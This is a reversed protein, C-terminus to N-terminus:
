PLLQMPLPRLPHRAPQRGTATASSSATTSAISPTSSAAAPTAAAPTSSAAPPTTPTSSGAAAAPSSLGSFATAVDSSSLYFLKTSMPDSVIQWAMERIDSLFGKWTDCDPQTPATVRVTNRSVDQVTFQSYNLRGLRTALDGLASAHPINLEVSFPQAPTPIIGLSSATRGALEVITDQFSGLIKREEAASPQRTSYIVYLIPDRPALIFPTPNGLLTVITPADLPKSQAGTPLPLVSCTMAASSSDSSVQLILDVPAAAAYVSTAQSTARIIIPGPSNARYRVTRSGGVPTANGLLVRQQV